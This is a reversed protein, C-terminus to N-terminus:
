SGCDRDVAEEMWGAVLRISNFNGDEGEERRENSRGEEGM